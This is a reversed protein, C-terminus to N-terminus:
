ILGCRTAFTAAATRSPVDLKALITEVHKSATRRSM